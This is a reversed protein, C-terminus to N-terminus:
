PFIQQTQATKNKSNLFLYFDLVKELISDDSAQEIENILKEKRTM